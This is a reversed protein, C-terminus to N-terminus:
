IASVFSFAKPYFGKKRADYIGAIILGRALIVLIKKNV